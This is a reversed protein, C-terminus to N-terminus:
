ATLLGQSAIVQRDGNNHRDSINALHQLWINCLAVFSTAPMEDKRASRERKHTFRVSANSRLTVIAMASNFLSEDSAKRSSV